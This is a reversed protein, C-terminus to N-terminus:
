SKGIGAGVVAVKLPQSPQAMSIGDLHNVACHTLCLAFPNDILDSSTGSTSSGEDMSGPSLIPHHVHM